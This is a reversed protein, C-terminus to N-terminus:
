RQLLTDRKREIEKERDHIWSIERILKISIFIIEIPVAPFLFIMKLLRIDM